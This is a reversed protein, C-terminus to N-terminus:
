NGWLTEWLEQQEKLLEDELSSNKNDNSNESDPDYKAGNSNFLNKCVPCKLSKKQEYGSQVLVPHTSCDPCLPKTREEETKDKTWWM